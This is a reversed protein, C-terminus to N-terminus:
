VKFYDRIPAQFFLVLIAGNLITGIPFGLIGITSMAIQFYWALRKGKLLGLGLFLFFLLFLFSVAFFVLFIMGTLVFRSGQRM